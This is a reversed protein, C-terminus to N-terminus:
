LLVLVNEFQLEAVLSLLYLFDVLLCLLSHDVGDIICIVSCFTQMLFRLDVHDPSHFCCIELLVMGDAFGCGGRGIGNVGLMFRCFILNQRSQSLVM